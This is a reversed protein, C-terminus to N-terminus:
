KIMSKDNEASHDRLTNTKNKLSYFTNATVAAGTRNAPTNKVEHTVPVSMQYSNKMLTKMGEVNFGQNNLIREENIKSALGLNKLEIIHKNKYANYAEITSSKTQSKSVLKPKFGSHKTKKEYFSPLVKKSSHLKDKSSLIEELRKAVDVKGTRYMTQHKERAERVQKLFHNTRTSLPKAKNNVEVSNAAGINVDHHSFQIFCNM